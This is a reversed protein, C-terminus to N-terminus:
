QKILARDNSVATPRKEPTTGDGTDNDGNYLKNGEIKVISYDVSGVGREAVSNVNFKRGLIDKAENLKWDTYGYLSGENADAIEADNTITLTGSRSTFDVNKTTTSNAVNEGVSYSDEYNTRGWATFCTKDYYFTVQLTTSVDNYVRNGKINWPGAITCDSVWTGALEPWSKSATSSDDSGSGCATFFASFLLALSIRKM